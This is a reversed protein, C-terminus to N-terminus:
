IESKIPTSSEEWSDYTLQTFNKYFKFLQDFMIMNQFAVISLYSIDRM